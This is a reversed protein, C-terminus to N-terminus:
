IRSIDSTTFVTKAVAIQDIYQSNDDASIRNRNIDRGKSRFVGGALFGSLTDTGLHRLAVWSTMRDM